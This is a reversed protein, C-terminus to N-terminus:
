SVRQPLRLLPARLRSRLDGTAPRRLVARAVDFMAGGDSSANDVVIVDPLGMEHARRAAELARDVTGESEYTVFVGTVKPQKM